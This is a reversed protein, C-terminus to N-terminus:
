GFIFFLAFAIQSLVNIISAIDIHDQTLRQEGNNFIQVQGISTTSSSCSLCHASAMTYKEKKIYHSCSNIPMTYSQKSKELKIVPKTDNEKKILQQENKLLLVQNGPLTPETSNRNHHIEINRQRRQIRSPSPDVAPSTSYLLRQRRPITFSFGPRSSNEPHLGILHNVRTSSSIGGPRLLSELNITDSRQNSQYGYLVNNRRGLLFKRNSIKGM